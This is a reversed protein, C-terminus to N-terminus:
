PRGYHLTILELHEDSFCTSDTLCAFEQGLVEDFLQRWQSRLMHYDNRIGRPQTMLSVLETLLFCDVCAQAVEMPADHSFVFDIVRGYIQYASCALEPSHLEPYDHNASIEFLVFHDFSPALRQLTAAKLDRPFHHFALSSLAVDFHGEFKGPSDQIRGRVTKIRVGPFSTSVTQRALELMAPSSDVLLVEGIEDINGAQKLKQLFKVVMGGDGCGLDMLRFAHHFVPLSHSCHGFFNERSNQVSPTTTFHLYPRPDAFIVVPMTFRGKQREIFAALYANSMLGQGEILAGETFWQLGEAVHGQSALLSGAYFYFIPKLASRGDVGYAGPKLQDKLIREGADQWRRIEPPSLFLMKFFNTISKNFHTRGRDAPVV